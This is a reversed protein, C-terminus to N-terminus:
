SITIQKRNQELCSEEVIFKLWEKRLLLFGEGSLQHPSIAVAYIPAVPWLMM